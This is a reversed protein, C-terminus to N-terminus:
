LIVFFYLALRHMALRVRCKKTMRGNQTNWDDQQTLETNNSPVRSLCDPVGAVLPSNDSIIRALKLDM